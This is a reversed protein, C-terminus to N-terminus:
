RQMSPKVRNPDEVIGQRLFPLQCLPGGSHTPLNCTPLTIEDLANIYIFLHKCQMNNYIPTFLSITVGTDPGEHMNKPEYVCFQALKMFPFTICGM